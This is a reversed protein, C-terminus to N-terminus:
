FRKGPKYKVTTHPGIFCFGTDEGFYDSYNDNEVSGGQGMAYSTSEIWRKEWITSSVLLLRTTTPILLNNVDPM